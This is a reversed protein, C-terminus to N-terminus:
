GDFLPYVRYKQRVQDWRRYVFRGDVFSNLLDMTERATVRETGSAAESLQRYLVSWALCSDTFGVKQTAGYVWGVIAGEKELAKTLGINGGACSSMVLTREPTAFGKLMRALALWGIRNGDTLQIGDHGGHCSLHLVDFDGSTAAAMARILHAKDVAVRYRVTSNEIKLVDRAAKGDLRGKYFDVPKLSEVIFVRLKPM